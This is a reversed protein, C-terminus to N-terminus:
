QDSLFYLSGATFPFQSHCYEGVFKQEKNNYFFIRFTPNSVLSALLNQAQICIYKKSCIQNLINSSWGQFDWRESLM